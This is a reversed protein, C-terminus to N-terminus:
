EQLGRWLMSRSIAGSIPDTRESVPLEVAMQFPTMALSTEKVEDGVLFEVATKNAYKFHQKTVFQGFVSYEEARRQIDRNQNRKLSYFTLRMEPPMAFERLRPLRRLIDQQQELITLGSKALESSDFPSDQCALLSLSTLPYEDIHHQLLQQAADYATDSAPYSVALSLSWGLSIAPSAHLACLRCASLISRSEDLASLDYAQAAPAQFHHVSAKHLLAKGLEIDENNTLWGSIAVSFLIPSQGIEDLCFDAAALCEASSSEGIKERCLKTLESILLHCKEPESNVDALKRYLEYFPDTPM